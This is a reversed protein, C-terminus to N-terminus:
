IWGRPWTSYYDYIRAQERRDGWDFEKDAAYSKLKIQLATCRDGMGRLKQLQELSVYVFSQDYESMETKVYDTVLFTGWVPKLNDGGVTTITVDDGPRLATEEISEGASPTGKPMVRM